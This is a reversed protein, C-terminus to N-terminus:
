VTFRERFRAQAAHSFGAGDLAAPLDREDMDDLLRAMTEPRSDMCQKLLEMDPILQLMQPPLATLRANIGRANYTSSVMYDALIDEREVGCLTLVVAALIGTRDKGASCLFLVGGRESEELITNLVRACVELGDFLTRSYDLKMSQVIQEASLTRPDVTGIRDLEPMLSHHHFCVGEPARIPAAQAEGASRLDIVAAIGRGRLIQWEEATLASLADSRYLMGWRTTKGGGAPYGGLDRLNHANQLAIRKLNM